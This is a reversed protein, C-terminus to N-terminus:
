ISTEATQEQKSATCTQHASRTGLLQRKMSHEQSRATNHYPIIGIKAKRKSPKFQLQFGSKLLAWDVLLVTNHVIRAM